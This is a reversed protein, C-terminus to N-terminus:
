GDTTSAQSKNEQTEKKREKKKEEQNHNRELFECDKQYTNYDTLETWLCKTETEQKMAWM